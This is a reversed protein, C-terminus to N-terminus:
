RSHPAGLARAGRRLHSAIAGLLPRDAAASLTASRETAAGLSELVDKVAASDISEADLLDRLATLGDVVEDLDHPADRCTALWYDITRLAVSPTIATLPGALTAETQDLSPGDPSISLGSM